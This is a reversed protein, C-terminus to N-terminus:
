KGNGYLNEVFNREIESGGNGQAQYSDIFKGEVEFTNKWWLYGYKPNGLRKDTTISHTAVSKKAWEESIIQKGNLAGNNLFLQGLKAFDRPTMFVRVGIDERHPFFMTWNYNEIKLPRFLHQKAFNQLSTSAAKVIIARVAMEGFTCYSFQTGPPQQYPLELFAKIWDTHRYLKNENGVSSNGWDNCDLGTTM